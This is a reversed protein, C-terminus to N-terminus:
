HRWTYYSVEDSVSLLCQVAASKKMEDSNVGGSKRKDAKKTKISRNLQQMEQQQLPHQQPKTLEKKSSPFYVADRSETDFTDQQLISLIYRTYVVADIGRVELEHGLWNQVSTPLSTSDLSM